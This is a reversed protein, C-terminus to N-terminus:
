DSRSLHGDIDIHVDDASARVQAVAIHRVLPDSRLNVSHVFGVDGGAELHTITDPSPLFHTASVRGIGAPARGTWVANLVRGILVKLMSRSRAPIIDGNVM